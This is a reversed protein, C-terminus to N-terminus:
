RNNEFERATVDNDNRASDSRMEMCCSRSHFFNCRCPFRTIMTFCLGSSKKKSFAKLSNLHHYIIPPSSRQRQHLREILSSLSLTAGPRFSIPPGKDPSSESLFCIECTRQSIHENATLQRPFPMENRRCSRLSFKEASASLLRFALCVILKANLSLRKWRALSMSIGSINKCEGFLGLTVQNREGFCSLHEVRAILSFRLPIKRDAALSGPAAPAPSTHGVKAEHNKM